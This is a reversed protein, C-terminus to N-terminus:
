NVQKIRFIVPLTFSLGQQVVVAPPKPVPDSRQIMGLAADDFMTDGSRRVISSSIVHGAEDIVFNVVVQVGRVSSTAPYRKHRDLHAILEKQWTARVRQPSEGTGQEPTISRTSENALESSPVATAEVAISSEAPVAPVIPTVPQEEKVEKAEIPAVLLDPEETEIPPEKPLVAEELLKTPEVAAVAVASQEVDPGPPLDSPDVRPSVLEVGIALAPAGLEPDPDDDRLYERALAFGAAHITVAALAAFAWMWFSIEQSSEVDRM